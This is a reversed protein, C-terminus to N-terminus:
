FTNEQPALWTSFFFGEFFDSPDGSSAAWVGLGLRFPLRGSDAAECSALLLSAAAAGEAPWSGLFISAEWTLAGGAGGAGLFSIGPVRVSMKSSFRSM